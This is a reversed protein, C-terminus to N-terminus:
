KSSRKHGRRKNSTKGWLPGFTGTGMGLPSLRKNQKRLEGEMYASKGEAQDMLARKKAIGAAVEASDSYKKSM